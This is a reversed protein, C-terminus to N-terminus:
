PGGRSTDGAPASPRASRDHWRCRPMQTTMVEGARNAPAAGARARGCMAPSPSRRSSGPMPRWAGRRPSHLVPTILECVAETTTAGARSFLTTGHADAVLLRPGRAAIAAPASDVKINDLLDGATDFVMVSDPMAAFLLARGVSALRIAPTSPTVLTLPIKRSAAPHAPDALWIAGGDQTLLALRDEDRLCAIARMRPLAPPLTFTRLTAGACSLQMVRNGPQGALLLWVGDNGADALDLLGAPLPVSVITCLDDQAICDLRVGDHSAVWLVHRGAVLPLGTHVLVPPAELAEPAEGDAALRYLTRGAGRWWASGDASIAALDAGAAPGLARGPRAFPTFPHLTGDAARVAGALVGDTWQAASALHYTRILPANM